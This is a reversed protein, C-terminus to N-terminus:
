VGWARDDNSEAGGERIIKTHEFQLYEDHVKRGLVYAKTLFLLAHRLYKGEAEDNGDGTPSDGSEDDDDDDSYVPEAHPM